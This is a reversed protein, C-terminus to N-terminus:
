RMKGNSHRTAKLTESITEGFISKYYRSFRQEHHIGYEARLSRVSRDTTLLKKRIQIVRKRQFYRIPPLGYMRRFYRDFMTRSIDYDDCLEPVKWDIRINGIMLDHIAKVTEPYNM